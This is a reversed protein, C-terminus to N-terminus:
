RNDRRIRALAMSAAGNRSLSPNRRLEFEILRNAQGRDGLCAALLRTGTSARGVATRALWAILVVVAGIWLFQPGSIL